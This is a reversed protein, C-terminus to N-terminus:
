DYVARAHTSPVETGPLHNMPDLVGYRGMRMTSGGFYMRFGTSVAWFSNTGFLEEPDVGGREPRVLHHQIEGFPRVSVPLDLLEYGYGISNILWRTARQEGEEGHDYRFFDASGPDGLRHYEPRTAYEIRYYPQHRGGAGLELRTEALISYYGRASGELESRSGEALAYLRGGALRADYRVTANMLQTAPQDDEQSIRAYSVSVEWPPPHADAGLRHALRASWSDGFSSINSFDYPDEPEAGGFVGFEASLGTRHVYAANVTWRELIQSLHHNTPYKLGPRGMPDDTGYPAFGKGASFSLAGGPAGWMNYSVMLEHILTHPHRRDIFGEGWGGFTLEGDPQTLGEFNVTTRLTWRSDRSALNATVAPQSFYLATEHLPTAADFPTGATVVPFLQAMGMLSWGNGLPQMWMEAPDEVPSNGGHMAQAIAPFPVFMAAVAAAALSMCSKRIVDRESSVPM